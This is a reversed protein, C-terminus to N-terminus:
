PAPVPQSPHRPARAPESVKQRLLRVVFGSASRGDQAALQRIHEHLEEPLYVSMISM